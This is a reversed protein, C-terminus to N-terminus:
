PDIVQDARLLLSPPITLGLAKATKLNIVLEFRTPREIPLDGPKAGKLIKDVYVAARRFQDSLSPGYTMLLGAEAFERWLSIAPLRHKALLDAIRGRLSSTFMPTGSVYIAGVREKIAARVADDLDKSDSVELPLLEVGLSRAAEEAAGWLPHQRFPGITTDWLLGVRSLRPIAEKLFQLRKGTLGEPATTIGTINGGPRALSEAYGERVPDNSSAVMVIPITKTADRAANLSAPGAAALIVDVKLLVLEVALDPFRKDQGAAWRREIAINQGEVYGLERLGKLFTDQFFEQATIGGIPSPSHPSLRALIGITTIRSPQQAEAALPVTLLSLALTELFARRNV